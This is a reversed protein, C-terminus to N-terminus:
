RYGIVFIIDDKKNSIWMMPVGNGLQPGTSAHFEVTSLKKIQFESFSSIRM